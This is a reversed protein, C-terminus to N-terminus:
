KKSKVEIGDKLLGAGDSIIVDGVKLGDTVIFTKGDSVNMTKIEISKTKGSVVKYVYEKDQIEFTATQPIVICDKMVRPVIVTASSGSRLKHKPNKFTARVTVAGTQKDVLGSVADIKGKNEYISGDSLKLSVSPMLSAFDVYTGNQKSMGLVQEETLSFYVYMRSDDSVTILPESMQESVLAGVRLSIMGAVGNVPSKVITYSLNNAAKTLDADAQALSAQASRYSNSAQTLDYTSIVKEKFLKQKSSYTLKATALNAKASEVNAKANQYSARYPVQNIIFLTQGKSVHAGEKVCIQTITGSVQPYVDVDNCGKVSASYELDITKTTREVTKTPYDNSVPMQAQKKCSSFSMAGMVALLVISIQKRKM